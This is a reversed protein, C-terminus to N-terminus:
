DASPFEKASFKSILRGLIAEAATAHLQQHAIARILSEFPSRLSKPVFKIKGHRERLKAYDSNKRSLNRCAKEFSMKVKLNRTHQHDFTRWTQLYLVRLGM